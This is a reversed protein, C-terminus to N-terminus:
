DELMELRGYYVVYCICDVDGVAQETHTSGARSRCIEGPEYVGRDDKFTGQLVLVNEDGHHRHLGHRAGPRAWVLCARVGRVPDQFLVHVRVGPALDVWTCAALDLPLRPARALDLVQERLYAPPDVPGPEGLLAAELESRPKAEDDMM